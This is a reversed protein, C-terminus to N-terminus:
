RGSGRAPGRRRCRPASRGRIAAPERGDATWAHLSLGHSAENMLVALVPADAETAPRLPPALRAM